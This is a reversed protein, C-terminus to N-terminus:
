KETSPGVDSTVMIYCWKYVMVFGEAKKFLCMFEGQIWMCQESCYYCNYFTLLICENLLKETKPDKNTYFYLRENVRNMCFSLKKV